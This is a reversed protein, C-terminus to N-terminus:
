GSALLRAVAFAVENTIIAMLHVDDAEFPAGRESREFFLLGIAKGGSILPAAFGGGPSRKDGGPPPIRVVSRARLCTDIIERAVGTGEESGDKRKEVTLLPNRGDEELLLCVGRDADFVDVFGIAVRKLLAEVDNEIVVEDSLQRARALTKSRRADREKALRGSVDLGRSPTDESLTPGLRATTGPGSRAPLPPAPHTGSPTPPVAYLIRVKVEGFRMVDGPKLETGATEGDNVFTKGSLLDRLLVKDGERIVVAHHDTVSGDLLILDNDIGRGITTAGQRLPHITVGRSSPYVLSLVPVGHRGTPGRGQPPNPTGAPKDEPLM